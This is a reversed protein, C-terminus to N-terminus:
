SMRYTQETSKINYGSLIAGVNKFNSKNDGPAPTIEIIDVLVSLFKYPFFYTKHM